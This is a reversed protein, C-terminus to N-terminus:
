MYPPLYRMNGHTITKTSNLRRSRRPQCHILYTKAVEDQMAAFPHFNISKDAMMGVLRHTM